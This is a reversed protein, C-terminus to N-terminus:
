RNQQNERDWMDKLNMYGYAEPEALGVLHGAVWTDWYGNGENYRNCKKTAGIVKAIDGAVSTKDATCLIYGM